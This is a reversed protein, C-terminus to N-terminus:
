ITFDNYYGTLRYAVITYDNLSVTYNTKITKCRLVYGTVIDNEKKM